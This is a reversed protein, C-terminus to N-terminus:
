PHANFLLTVKSRVKPLPEVGCVCMLTMSWKSVFWDRTYLSCRLPPSSNVTAVSLKWNRKFQNTLKLVLKLNLNKIFSVEPISATYYILPSVHCLIITQFNKTPPHLFQINSASFVAPNGKDWEFIISLYYTHRQM